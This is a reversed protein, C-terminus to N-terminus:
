IEMIQIRNCNTLNNGGITSTFGANDGVAYLEIYDGPSMTIIGVAGIRVGSGTNTIERYALRGATDNGNKLIFTAIRNAVSNTFHVHYTIIWRCTDTKSPTSTYTFRTNNTTNSHYNGTDTIENNFNVATIVGNSLTQTTNHTADVYNKNILITQKNIQLGNININSNTSNLISKIEVENQDITLKNLISPNIAFIRNTNLDPTTLYTNLIGPHLFNITGSTNTEITDTKIVGKIQTANIHGTMNLTNTGSVKEFRIGSDIIDVKNNQASLLLPESLSICQLKNLDFRMTNYLTIYTLSEPWIEDTFIDNKFRIQSGTKPYINGVYIDNECLIDNEIVINGTLTINPAALPKRIRYALLESLCEIVKTTPGYNTDLVGTVYRTTINPANLTNINVTSTSFGTINDVNLTGEIGVDTLVNLDGNCNMTSNVTVIGVGNDDITNTKILSTEILPTQIKKDTDILLDQLFRVRNTLVSTIEDTKLKSDNELELDATVQIKGLSASSLVDTQLSTSNILRLPSRVELPQFEVNNQLFGIQIGRKTVGDNIFVLNGVIDIKTNGTLPHITGVYIDNTNIPPFTGIIKSASVSVIKSDTIGNDKVGLLGNTNIEISLDDVPFGNLVATSADISDTVTLDSIDASDISLSSENYVGAYNSM